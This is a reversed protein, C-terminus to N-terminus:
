SIRLSCVLCLLSQKGLLEHSGVDRIRLKVAPYIENCLLIIIIEHNSATLCAWITRLVRRQCGGSAAGDPSIPPTVTIQALM